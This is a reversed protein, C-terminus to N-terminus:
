TQNNKVNWVNFLIGTIFLKLCVLFGSYYVVLTKRDNWPRFYWFLHTFTAKRKQPHSIFFFINECFCPSFNMKNQFFNPIKKRNTEKWWSLLLPFFFICNWLKVTEYFFFFARENRLFIYALGLCCYIFIAWFLWAKQQKEAFASTDAFYSLSIHRHM